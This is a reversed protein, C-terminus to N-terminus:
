AFYLMYLGQLLGVFAGLVAGLLILVYEDEQFASRLIPEFEEPPLTRMRQYIMDEVNMSREILKELTVSSESLLQIMQEMAQKRVKATEKEVDQLLHSNTQEEQKVSNETARAKELAQVLDTEIIEVVTRAVRRYLIEEMIKRGSFVHHAFINAYKLSVEDQRKLFMGQYRIGLFKKEYLPRFIMTLALWNTVYGVVIGQVPLTYWFPFFYWLGMQVTGLLAGFHWGSKLIFRFENQGVEQFIDVILKVNKGTLSRLVLSKFNFVKKIDQSLHETIEKVKAISEQHAKDEMQQLTQPSIFHKLHSDLSEVMHESIDPINKEVIPLFQKELIQPKLRTFFEDIRILKESLMNVSKLALGSAKRPVIGQWGLYPPIGVFALPYFTMRLAVLNTFWGVFGYTLPMLLVGLWDKNSSIWEWM